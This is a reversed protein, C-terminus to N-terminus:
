SRRRSTPSPIATRRVSFSSGDIGLPSPEVLHLGGPTIMTIAHAGSQAITVTADDQVASAESFTITGFNDLPLQRGRGASPAEQVWEVSTLSSAYRETVQYSQGSTLNNLAILWSEPGQQTISVQIMDGPKLALPVTRSPLPLLEVWAELTPKGGNIATRDTGAQILDHSRVGGIGIWTADTGPSSLALETLRWTASVATYGGATAAYGAWNQSVPQNGLLGTINLESQPADEPSTEAADTPLAAITPSLAVSIPREAATSLEDPGTVQRMAGYGLGAGIVVVLAVLVV